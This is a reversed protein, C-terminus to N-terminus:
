APLLLELLARAYAPVRALDIEAMRRVLVIGALEPEAERALFGRVREGLQQADLDTDLRRACAALPGDTVLWRQQSARVVGDALGTEEGLERRISGEIDLRDGRIDDRDPTGAPFFIRGANATHSGMEALLVAGDRTVVVGAGFCNAAGGLPPFGLSRWYLLVAYDVEVYTARVVGDEVALDRALLVRGNFLAPNRASSERWHAAIAAANDTAFSWPGPAVRMEFSRVPQVVPVSGSPNLPSV